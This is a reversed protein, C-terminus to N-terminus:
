PASSNSVTPDDPPAKNLTKINAGRGSACTAQRSEQAVKNLARLEVSLPM